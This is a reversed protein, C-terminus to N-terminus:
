RWKFLVIGLIITCIGLWHTWGFSKSLGYYVLVSTVVVTIIANYLLNDLMLRSSYKTFTSYVVGFLVSAVVVLAYWLPGGTTSNRYTCYGSVICLLVVAPIWWLYPSM